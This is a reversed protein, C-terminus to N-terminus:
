GIHGFCLPPPLLLWLGRVHLVMLRIVQLRLETAQLIHAQLELMRRPCLCLHLVHCLLVLLRLVRVQLVM